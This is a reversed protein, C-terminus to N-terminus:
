TAGRSEVGFPLTAYRQRETWVVRDLVLGHAALRLQAAQRFREIVPQSFAPGAVTVLVRGDEAETLRVLHPAADSTKTPLLQRLNLALRATTDASTKGRAAIRTEPGSPSPETARVTEAAPASPGPREAQRPLAAAKDVVVPRTESGKESRVVPGSALDQVPTEADPAIAPQSPRSTEPATPAEVASFRGFM